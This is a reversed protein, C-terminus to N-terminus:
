ASALSIGLAYRHLALALAYWLKEINRSRQAFFPDTRTNQLEVMAQELGVADSRVMAWFQQMTGLRNFIEDFNSNLRVVEAGIAGLDKHQISLMNQDLQLALITDKKAEIEQKRKDLGTVLGYGIASIGGVVLVSSAMPALAILGMLSSVGTFLSVSGSVTPVNAFSWLESFFGQSAELETQLQSIKESIVKLSNRVSSSQNDTGKILDSQFNKINDRLKQFERATDNGQSKFDDLGEIFGILEDQKDRRSVDPDNLLPILNMLFDNIKTKMRTANTQSIGVEHYSKWEPFFLIPFGNPNKFARKSDISRVSRSIDGFQQEVYLVTQCLQGIEQAINDRFESTTSGDAITNHIHTIAGEDLPNHQNNAIIALIDHPSLPAVPPNPIVVSM